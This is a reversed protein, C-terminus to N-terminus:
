ERREVVEPEASRRLVIDAGIPKCLDGNRLEELLKQVRRAVAFRFVAGSECRFIRESNVRRSVALSATRNGDEDRLTESTSKETLELKM